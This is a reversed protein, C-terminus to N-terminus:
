GRTKPDYCVDPRNHTGAPVIPRGIAFVEVRFGRLL